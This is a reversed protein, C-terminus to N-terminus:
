YFLYFGDFFFFVGVGSTALGLYWLPKKKSIASISSLMIAIQLFILAFGFNAGHLQAAQKEKGLQEAKDKIEKKEKEYRKLNEEYGSLTKEFKESLERTLKGKLTLYQLDMMQKQLEYTHSKISKAQYFAWQDSEQAQQLVTRSSYKGVYLTTIAALVAMAATSLAVFTIWTEKKQESMRVKRLSKEIVEKSGRGGKGM